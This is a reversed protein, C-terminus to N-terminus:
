WLWWRHRRHEGEGICDGIKSGIDGNGEIEGGVVIVMPAVEEFNVEPAAIKAGVDVGGGHRLGMIGLPDLIVKGDDLPDVHTDGGLDEVKDKPISGGGGTEPHSKLLQEM